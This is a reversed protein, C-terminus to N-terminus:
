LYIWFPLITFIEICTLHVTFVFWRVKTSKHKESKAKSVSVFKGGDYTIKTTVDRGDPTKEEFEEGLQFLANLLNVKINFFFIVPLACKSM